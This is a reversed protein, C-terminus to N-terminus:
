PLAVLFFDRQDPVLYRGPSGSMDPLLPYTLARVHSTTPWALAGVLVAVSLAVM